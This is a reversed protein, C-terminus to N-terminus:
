YSSNIHYNIPDAQINEETGVDLKGMTPLNLNSYAHFPYQESLQLKLCDTTSPENLSSEQRTNDIQGMNDIDTEKATEFLGSYSPLLIDRSCVADRCTSYSITWDIVIMELFQDNENNPLWSIPQSEQMAGIMLSSHMGNQYKHIRIQSLSESLSEEMQRLHEINDIKDPDSWYDM